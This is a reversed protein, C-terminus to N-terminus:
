TKFLNQKQLFDIIKPALLSRAAFNSVHDNDWYISKKDLAFNCKDKVCLAGLADFLFLNEYTSSFYQLENILKKYKGNESSYYGIEHSCKKKSFKNFWQVNQNDCRLIDGYKWEPTPTSIVLNVNKSSLSDNFREVAKKWQYFHLNINNNDDFFKSPMRITIFVIDGSNSKELIENRIKESETEPEKGIWDCCSPFLNTKAYYLNSKFKKAVIEAGPLLSFNHSDGVFFLTRKNKKFQWFCEASYIIGNDNFKKNEPPCYKLDNDLAYYENSKELYNSYDGLFLRGKLIKGLGILTLLSLFIAIAGEFFTKWIRGSHNVRRFPTEIFKYSFISAWYIIVVQFPISWWHIGITWNSISLIGWHWLYLSYSIVGIHVIKPNSLIKLLFTKEEFSNILFITLLVIFIHLFAGNNIPSYLVGLICILYLLNPINRLKTLLNNKYQILLFILCGSAIEWFRSPMAYYAILQNKGYFYIFSILSISSLFSISILFNRSGKQINRSFGSLWFIFPYFLYFQEEVGLSWTHTFVNLQTSQSFYDKSQEILYLNSVGFLSTIGTILSLGPYPNFFCILFGTILVFFVLGPIIRRIRREYFNSLFEFFTKSKKRALSATIVYGSIVLFIDVGLYGNPLFEESFHYIIISIVALARLGDIEPKYHSGEISNVKM